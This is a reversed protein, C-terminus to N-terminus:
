ISSLEVAMFEASVFVSFFPSTLKLNGDKKPQFVFGCEIFKPLRKAPEPAKFKAPFPEVDRVPWNSAKTEARTVCTKGLPSRQM